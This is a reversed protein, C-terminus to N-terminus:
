GIKETLREAAETVAEDFSPHVRATRGLEEATIKHSVALALEGAIDSARECLLQAGIVCGNRKDAVLKIFGREGSAIMTSANTYLPQKAAAVDMGKDRAESETYGVSAAEPRSFICRATVARPPVKKGAIRRAIRKGQEMASNALRDSDELVDGAAYVSCTKTRGTEDAVIGGKEGVEVLGDEMAPLRPRRGVASVIIDSNQTKLVEMSCNNKIEIGLCKMNHALGAAIEKEWKRLIREGRTCLTVKTGFAQYIYAFEVATVGGGIITMTEPLSDMQLLEDTDVSNELFGPLNEAGTAILINSAKYMGSVTKVCHGDAVSAEELVLDVKKQRAMQLIGNRLKFVTEERSNKMRRYDLGPNEAVIGYRGCDQLRSYLKAAHCMFKTPVCGRNLCTGGMEKQEFLVVSLGLSSAEWAASYGAPGGGIIGLDYKM